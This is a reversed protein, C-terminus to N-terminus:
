PPPSADRGKTVMDQVKRAFFVAAGFNNESLQREAKTLLEQCRGLTVKDRADLRGMLIRAEAIASSADAKTEIGQLRAKTRVVETETLELERQLLAVREELRRREEESRRLRGALPDSNDHPAKEAPPGKPYLRALDTACHAEAAALRGLIEAKQTTDPTAGSRANLAEAEKLHGEAQNFIEPVRQPAGARRAEDVAVRAPGLDPGGTRKAGGKASACAVLSIALLVAWSVRLFMGM